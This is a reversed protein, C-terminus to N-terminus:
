IEMRLWTRTRTFFEWRLMLNSLTHVRLTAMFAPMMVLLILNRKRSISNKYLESCLHLKKTLFSHKFTDSFCVARQEFYTKEIFDLYSISRDIELMNTQPNFIFLESPNIARGGFNDFNWQWPEMFNIRLTKSPLEKCDM